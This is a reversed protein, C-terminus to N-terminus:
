GSWLVSSGGALLNQPLGPEKRRTPRSTPNPTNSQETRRERGAQHESKCPLVSNESPTTANEQDKGSPVYNKATWNARSASGGGREMHLQIYRALDASFIPIFPASWYKREGVHPSKKRKAPDPDVVVPNVPPGVNADSTVGRRKAGNRSAPRRAWEVPLCTCPRIPVDAL